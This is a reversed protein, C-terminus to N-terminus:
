KFRIPIRLEKDNETMGSPNDNHFILVGEPTTPTSFNLVAEFPVYETTMWPAKAHAPLQVLVTGNGDLLKVPFSAEFYWNGRASGKVTYPSTVVSGVLPTDVVFLDEYKQSARTSPLPTEAKFFNGWVFFGCLILIVVVILIAVNKGKM